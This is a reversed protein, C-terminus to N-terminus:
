SDEDYIPISTLSWKIKIRTKEEETLGKKYNELIKDSIGLKCKLYTSQLNCFNNILSPPFENKKSKKM